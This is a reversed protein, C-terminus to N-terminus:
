NIPISMQQQEQQQHQDGSLENVLLNNEGQGEEIHGRTIMMVEEEEEDDDDANPPLTTTTEGPMADYRLVISEDEAQLM